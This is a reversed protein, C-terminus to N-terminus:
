KGEQELNKRRNLLSDASELDLSDIIAILIDVAPTKKGAEIESYYNASIGTRSALEAQTLGIRLRKDKLSKTNIASM